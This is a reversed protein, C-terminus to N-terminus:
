VKGDISIVTKIVNGITSVAWEETEERSGYGSSAWGKRKDIPLEEDKKNTALIIVKPKNKLPLHWLQHMTMQEPKGEVSDVIEWIPMNKYKIVTRKHFINNAVFRYVHTTGSFIYKEATKIPSTLTLPPSPVPHHLANATLSAASTTLSASGSSWYYWIFRGGKLMQDVDDLMVTNHSATGSFYRITANDTNYKYSGADLLINQGKYWVDMHLNDAQSPRDKHNGCRIFTLTDPERIVYYGGIPFDHIGMAPAADGRPTKNIGYWLADEQTPIAANMGLVAALAQLQPRYDRFLADNLKFFLAGDNAGYNPLMGNEEVMCTRLFQLSKKARDYVVPALKEGNNEALVIAWTILQVVVRHYNMSFQLYTGDAYVQYAIEEELWAKGQKRWESANPLQPFLMSVLYLALTESIAHNNRVSKRSFQINHYIHHLQWYISHQIVGFVEPTLTASDSYYYLAFIWNFLRLAIEQSCRYNPGCNIPNNEIWSVIDGLAWAACDEKFHYDYRIIDYLYSFRSKEWVYKIDGAVKSYDTVETWHKNKDYRYGNDPNTVWDYDNGLAVWDSNFMLFNGARLNDIREKLAAEPRSPFSLADKTQFFFRKKNARWHQLTLYDKYAPAVPFRRKLIGLKRQVEHVGRFRVYGWGMNHVLNAIKQLKSPM